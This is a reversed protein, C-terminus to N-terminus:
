KTKRHADARWNRILPESPIPFRPQKRWWRSHTQRYGQVSIPRNKRFEFTIMGTDYTRAMLTGAQRYRKVVSERPFSFPNQYGAAFVAWTPRVLEIFPASSSTSSGHHPAVLVDSGLPDHRFGWEARMSVDGPLLLSGGAGEVRVVCSSDNGLYPLGPYPHWVNAEVGSGAWHAGRICPEIEPKQSWGRPRLRLQSFASEVPKNSTTMIKRVPISSLLGLLGGAHDSDGHSIILLDVIHINRSQLFPVLIDEGSNAGSPSRRGTDYIIVSEQTQVVVSLGQGVDLVHAVFEGPELNSPPRLLMPALLLIALSRPAAPHPQAVLLMAMVALGWHWWRSQPSAKTYAPIYLALYELATMMGNLVLGCANLLGQGAGLISELFTGALALPVVLLSVLPICILNALPSALPVASFFALALAASLTILSGQAILWSRIKGPTGQRGEFANILAWAAGFSLWFSAGLLVIPDFLLTLVVAVRVISSGTAQWRTLRALYLLVLMTLARQTPLAFGALAAYIIAMSASVLCAAYLRNVRYNRRALVRWAASGLYWGITAIIGVHLGSVAMLHATGTQRLLSWQAQTIARRDALMLGQILSSEAGPVANAITKSVANRVRDISALRRQPTAVPKGEVVKGYAEIRRLVAMREADFSGPNLRAHPQILKVVLQLQQDPHILFPPNYWSLLIREPARVSKRNLAAVKVEFEFQLHNDDLKPLGAVHGSVTLPRNELDADIRDLAGHMHLVTWICACGAWAVYVLRPYRWGMWVLPPICACWWLSPLEPLALAGLCGALAFCIHYGNM